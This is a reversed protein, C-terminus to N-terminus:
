KPPQLKRFHIQRVLGVDGPTFARAKLEIVVYRRLKLHYFLLDLPYYTGGVELQVQRGVFAFGSGLEFLFKQIHDILAKEVEAERRADAALRDIVKTGWAAKQQRTYNM